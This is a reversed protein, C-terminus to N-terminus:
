ATLKIDADDFVAHIELKGGLAEVYRELTSLRVDLEKEIRGVNPRSTALTEALQTQSAGRLERLEALAIELQMARKIGGVRKRGDPSLPRKARIDDLTRAM